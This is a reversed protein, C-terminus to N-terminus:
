EYSLMIFEALKNHNESRSRKFYKWVLSQLTNEGMSYLKGTCVFDIVIKVFFFIFLFFQECIQSKAWTRERVRKAKEINKPLNSLAASVCVYVYNNRIKMWFKGNVIQIKTGKQWAILPSHAFKVTLGNATEILNLIFNIINVRHRCSNVLRSAVVFCYNLETSFFLLFAQTKFLHGNPM